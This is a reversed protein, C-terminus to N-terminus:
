IQVTELQEAGVAFISKYSFRAKAEASKTFTMEFPLNYNMLAMCGLDRKLGKAVLGDISEKAKQANEIMSKLEEIVKFYLELEGKLGIGDYVSVAGLDRWNTKQDKKKVVKKKKPDVPGELKERLEALDESKSVEETRLKEGVLKSYEEMRKKLDELHQNLSSQLEDVTRFRMIKGLQM